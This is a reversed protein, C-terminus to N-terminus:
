IYLKYVFYVFKSGSYLGTSSLLHSRLDSYTNSFNVLQKRHWLYSKLWECATGRIGYYKLKDILLSHDITNFAKKLDIFVAVTALSNDIGSSLKEMLDLLPLGQKGSAM